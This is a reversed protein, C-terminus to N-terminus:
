MVDRLRRRRVALYGPIGFTSWIGIALTAEAPGRFIFDLSARVVRRPTDIITALKDLVSDGGNSSAASSRDSGVNTLESVLELVEPDDPFGGGIDGSLVAIGYTTVSRVAALQILYRRLSADYNTRIMIELGPIALLDDGNELRSVAAEGRDKQIGALYGRPSGRRLEEDARPQSFIIRNRGLTNLAAITAKADDGSQCGSSIPTSAITVNCIETTWTARAADAPRPVRGNAYTRSSSRIAGIGIAPVGGGVDITVGESTSKVSSVVGLTKDRAVSSEVTSRAVNLGGVNLAPYIANGSVRGSVQICDAVASSGQRSPDTSTARADGSCEAPEATWPAGKGSLVDPPAGSDGPWCRAFDALDAQTGLDADAPHAAVAASVSSLSARQAFAASIDRNGRVCRSSQGLPAAGGVIVLRTGYGSAEGAFVSETKGDAEDVDATPDLDAAPPDISVSVPDEIVRWFPDSDISGSAMRHRLFLRRPRGGVAPDVEIPVSAMPGNFDNFTLAQPLPTRRGDILRLGGPDGIAESSVAVAPPRFVVLRGTAPDVSMRAEQTGQQPTPSITSTGVIKRARWDFTVVYSNSVMMHVREARDDVAMATVLSPGPFTEAEGTPAHNAGGLELRVLQTDTESTSCLLYVSRGDRSMFPTATKEMETNLAGTSCQQVRYLWDEAGTSADWQALFNNYVSKGRGYGLTLADPYRQPNFWFLLKGTAPEYRLGAPAIAYAPHTPRKLLTVADPAGQAFRAEDLVAIGEWAVTGVSFFVRGGAEDIVHHGAGEIVWPVPQSQLPQLTDLDFSTIRSPSGSRGGRHVQYGRRTRPSVLLSVQSNAVTDDGHVFVPLKAVDRPRDTAARAGTASPLTALAALLIALGAKHRLDM